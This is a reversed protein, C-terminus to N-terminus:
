RLDGFRIIIQPETYKEGSRIEAKPIPRLPGFEYRAVKPRAKEPTPEPEPAPQRRCRLRRILATLIM